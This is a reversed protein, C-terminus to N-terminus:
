TGRQGLVSGPTEITRRRSGIIADSRFCQLQSKRGQGDDPMSKSGPLPLNLAPHRSSRSMSRPRPLPTGVGQCTRAGLSRAESILPRVRLAGREVRQPVSRRTWAPVRRLRPPAAQRSEALTGAQAASSDFPRARHRDDDNRCPTAGALRPVEGLLFAAIMMALPVTLAARALRLQRQGVAGTVVVVGALAIGTGIRPRPPDPPLVAGRASRTGRWRM